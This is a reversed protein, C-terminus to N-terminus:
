ESYAIPPKGGFGCHSLRGHEPAKQKKFVDMQAGRASRRIM